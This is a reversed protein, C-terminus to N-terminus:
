NNKNVYHVRSTTPPLQFTVSNFIINISFVEISYITTTLTLTPTKTTTHHLVDKDMKPYEKKSISFLLIIDM